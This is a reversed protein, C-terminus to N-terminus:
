EGCTGIRLLRLSSFTCPFFEDDPPYMDAAQKYFRSAAALMRATEENDNAKQASLGQQLFMAGLTSYQHIMLHM